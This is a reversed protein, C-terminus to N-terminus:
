VVSKRDAIGAQASATNQAAPVSAAASAREAAPAAPKAKKRPKKAEPHPHSSGATQSGSWYLPTTCCRSQQYVPRVRGWPLVVVVLFLALVVHAILSFLLGRRRPPPTPNPSWASPFLM